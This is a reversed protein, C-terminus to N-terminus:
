ATKEKIATALLSEVESEVGHETQDAIQQSLARAKMSEAPRAFPKVERPKTLTDVMLHCEGKKCAPCNPDAKAHARTREREQFTRGDGQVAVIRITEFPLGKARAIDAQIKRDALGSYFYQHCACEITNAHSGEDPTLAVFVALNFPGQLGNQRDRFMKGPCRGFWPCGLTDPTRPACAGYQDRRINLAALEELTGIPQDKYTAGSSM